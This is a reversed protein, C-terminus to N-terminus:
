EVFAGFFFDIIRQFISRRGYLKNQYRRCGKQFERRPPLMLDVPMPIQYLKFLQTFADPEYHCLDHGTRRSLSELIFRVRKDREVVDVAKIPHDRDDPRM